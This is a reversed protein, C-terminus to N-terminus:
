GRAKRPKLGLKLDVTRDAPTAGRRPTSSKVILVRRKKAKARKTKTVTGLKCNAKKLAKKARKLTKGVLKPVTCELPKTPPPPPTTVVTRTYSIPASCASANGVADTATASFTATVGAAVNVQIGPAGLEGASGTAVPAGACAAGAYIRVTSGGEAAGRIRPAESLSPSAPDTGTLQPAAPAVVDGDHELWIGGPGGIREDVTECVDINEQNGADVPTATMDTWTGAIAGAGGLGATFPTGSRPNIGGSNGATSLTLVEPVTAVVCSGEANEGVATLLGGATGSLTLAGTAQDFSGTIVGITFDVAVDADLPETIFTSFQPVGLAGAEIAGSGPDFQGVFPATAPADFLAEDSLQVGVNARAETFSMSLPEATAQSACILLVLAVASTLGLLRAIVSPYSKDFSGVDYSSNM